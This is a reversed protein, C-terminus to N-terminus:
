KNVKSNVNKPHTIYINTILKEPQNLENTLNQNPPSSVFVPNPVLSEIPMGPFFRAMDSNKTFSPKARPVFVPESTSTRISMNTIHTQNDYPSLDSRMLAFAAIDRTKQRTASSSSSSASSLLNRRFPDNRRLWIGALIGMGLLLLVALGIM